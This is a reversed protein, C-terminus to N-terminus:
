RAIVVAVRKRLRVRGREWAEVVIESPGEPLKSTDLEGEWGESVTNFLVGEGAVLIRLTYKDLHDKIWASLHVRGRLVEGKQIAMPSEPPAENSFNADVPEVPLRFGEVEIAVPEPWRELFYPPSVARSYAELVSPEQTVAYNNNQKEEIEMNNGDFYFIAKVRPYFRPLSSYLASLCGTAFAAVSKSELNSHHTAGYEGIMIPKKGSYTTYVSELLDAPHTWKGPTRRDQNYYTVSYFNVGVWDVYEDGPYYSRINQRPMAYPCWVMAVNPALAHMKKAVLRFKERYAAPDGSYEVWPGNMESAFRLFIRAGTERLDRALTELYADDRVTDLGLNPELAIHVMKGQGHLREIWDKPLRSRYGMYFFYSAHPKGVSKEFAAPLRRMRGTGDKIPDGLTSDQDIFAGLFCGYAPEHIAGTFNAAVEDASPRRQVFVELEPASSAVATACLGVAILASRM